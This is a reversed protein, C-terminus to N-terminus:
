RLRRYDDEAEQRVRTLMRADRVEKNQPAIAEGDEADFSDYRGLLVM